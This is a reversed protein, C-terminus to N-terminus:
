SRSGTAVAAEIELFASLKEDSRVVFRNGDGRYFYVVFMKRGNANTVTVCGWSWGSKSLKDAIIEWYKTIGRSANVMLNAYGFALPSFDGKKAPVKRM